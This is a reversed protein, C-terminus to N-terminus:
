RGIDPNRHAARRRTKPLNPRESRFGRRFPFWTALILLAATSPEPVPDLKNTESFSYATLSGQVEAGGTDELLDFPLLGPISSVTVNTQGVGTSPIQFNLAAENGSACSPLCALISFTDTGGSSSLNLSGSIFGTEYISQTIDTFFMLTLPNTGPVLSSFDMTFTFPDGDLVGSLSPNFAPTDAGDDPDQTVFGGLVISSALAPIAVWCLALSLAILIRSM